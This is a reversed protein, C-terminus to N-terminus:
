VYSLEEMDMGIVNLKDQMPSCWDTCTVNNCDTSQAVVMNTAALVLAFLITFTKM